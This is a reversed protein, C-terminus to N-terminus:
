STVGSAKIRLIEVGDPERSLAWASVLAPFERRLRARNVEDARTIADWLAAIFAGPAHGEGHQLYLAAAASQEDTTVINRMKPFLDTTM